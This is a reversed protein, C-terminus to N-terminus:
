LGSGRPAKEVHRTSGFGHGTVSKLAPNDRPFTYGMVAWDIHATLSSEERNGCLLAFAPLLKPLLEPVTLYTEFLLANVVGELFEEAQKATKCKVRAAEFLVQIDAIGRHCRLSRGAAILQSRQKGRRAARNLLQMIRRQNM